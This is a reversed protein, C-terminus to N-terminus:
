CTLSLLQYQNLKLKLQEVGKVQEALMGATKAAEVNISNDDFFLIHRAEVKIQEAVYLFSEVEPKYMGIQFSAFYFDCKGDLQMEGMLRPWHLESTNSYIALTYQNKLKALLDLVGPYLGLPWRVYHNLFEQESVNLGQEEIVGAAFQNSSIRGKEYEKVFQSRSWLRWSETEDIPNNLWQNKIPLGDLEVLVGGLDFLIVKIDRM